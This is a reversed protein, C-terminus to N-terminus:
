HEEMEHKVHRLEEEHMAQLAKLPEERKRFMEEVCEFANEATRAYEKRTDALQHDWSSKLTQEIPKLLSVVDHEIASKLMSSINLRRRNLNDLHREHKRLALRMKEDLKVKIDNRKDEFAKRIANRQWSHLKEVALKARFQLQRREQEM